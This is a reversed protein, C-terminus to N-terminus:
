LILLNATRAAVEPSSHVYSEGHQFEASKGGPLTLRGSDVDVFRM